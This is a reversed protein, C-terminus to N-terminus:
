NITVDDDIAANQTGDFTGHCFIRGRSVCIFDLRLDRHTGDGGGDDQMKVHLKFGTPEKDYYAIMYDDLHSVGTAGGDTKTEPLISISYNTAHPRNNTGFVITYRGEATRTVTYEPKFLQFDSAIAEGNVTINGTVNLNGGVNVNNNIQDTTILTTTPTYNSGSNWIEKATINSIPLARYMDASSAARNLYLPANANSDGLRSKWYITYYVVETTNPSDLFSNGLNTIKTNAETSHVGMQDSLWVTTGTAGNSQNNDAESVHTWNGDGIKRYLRAGWWRADSSQNMGIHLNCSVLVNSASNTPKIAVVFGTELNNDIDDWTSNNKTVSKKYDKHQIQIIMGNHIPMLLSGNADELNGTIKLNGTVNVLNNVEDTTILTAPPTYIKGSNWIEKATINSIPLASYLNLMSHARNLHLIVNADGDNQGLKCKWYITYYVTETTNPSDLFSNGLNSIQYDDAHGSAGMGMGDSLWVSTPTQGAVSDNNEAETVRTWDGNGIKRYLRAGWYRADQSAQMGMQLNCSVLVNSASNTPKIAVVFGTELNNDIASWGTGSKSVVKKYDKHQVQVVMGNSMPVLSSGDSNIEIGNIDVIESELKICSKGDKVTGYIDGVKNSM